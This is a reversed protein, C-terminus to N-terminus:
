DVFDAEINATSKVGIDKFNEKIWERGTAQGAQFLHELFNPQTNLATSLDLEDFVGKNRILHMNLKKVSKDTIAGREILQTIFYIARMERLLCSNYTIEKHRDTIAAATTPVEDRYSQTLQVVIIDKTKCNYILPYIAPNGSFGGDWYFDGDVEVAQFLFPLCASALMAEETLEKGTFIKLKGSKVHTACLFIKPNTAKRLLDFDFFSRVMDKLPNINLPNTQYPSLFGGMLNMWLYLPSGRLTHSGMMEDMPSPRLPSTKSAEEIMKWFRKVEERAGEAGGKIYGQAFAVSNMGGASTGSLGEVEIRGDEMLADLVGWTFAGHTGGGQLALAVVKKEKAM